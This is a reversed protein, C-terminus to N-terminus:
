WGMEAKAQEWPIEEDNPDALRELALDGLARDLDDEEDEEAWDEIMRGVLASRSLGAERAADDLKTLVARDLSIKVGVKGAPPAPRSRVQTTSM